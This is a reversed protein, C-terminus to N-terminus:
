GRAPLVRRGYVLTCALGKTRYSACTEQIEPAYYNSIPCDSTVFVLVHASAPATLLYVTLLLLFTM